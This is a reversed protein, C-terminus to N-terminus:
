EEQHAFRSEAKQVSAAVIQDICSNFAKAAHFQHLENSQEAALMASLVDSSLENDDMNNIRKQIEEKEWPRIATLVHIHNNVVIKRDEQNAYRFNSDEESLDYNSYEDWLIKLIKEFYAEQSIEKLHHIMKSFAKDQILESVVAWNGKKSEEDLGVVGDCEFDDLGIHLWEVAQESLGTYEMAAKVNIDTSLTNSRGLLYDTSVNYFDAIRVLAEIDPVSDGNMWKSVTQRTSGFEEALEDLTRIKKSHLKRLRAQFISNKNIEKRKGAM